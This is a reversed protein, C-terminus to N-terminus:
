ADDCPQECHVCRKDAGMTHGNIECPTKCEPCVKDRPDSKSSGLLREPFFSEGCRVCNRTGDRNDPTFSMANRLNLAFVVGYAVSAVIFGWQRTVVAYVIWLVQAAINIGWAWWYGRSVLYLGAVGIASLVWSWM